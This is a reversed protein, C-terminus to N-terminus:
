ISYTISFPLWCGTTMTNYSNTGYRGVYINGDTKVDLLWRNIASGHCVYVYNWAPRFQEPITGAIKYETTNSTIDSKPKVAGAIFVQNGNVRYRPTQISSGYVEFNMSDVTLNRWNTCGGVIMWESWANTYYMRQFIFQETKLCPYYTQIVQAGEGSRIVTLAGTATSSAFWMPKNTITASLTTNGIIYYGETLITDLDTGEPLEKPSSILEGHTSRMIFGFEAAGEEEAVKGFGIGTGGARQSIFVARTSISTAQKTNTIADTATVRVDYSSSSDAEFIYQAETVSYQGAIESLTIPTGYSTESTKRYELKYTATNKSSLSTIAANFTVKIYNGTANINGASDCRQVVLNTIKPKSYALVTLNSSKGTGSRGRKDKVTASVTVTGSNKLVDTTFSAKTYTSGDASVSYSAIASGYSTTPTVTVAFKSVGQIFGGFTALKGTPDTVAVTCSPKVSSPISCTKTYSNSGVSTDGNYTTITYKISVSTGETNQSALSLPPTFSVSTNSSKTCITGSATGCTYKITHTFATTQKTVTLTQATGLTGNAVSMTSKRPITTLVKSCSAAVTGSSVGSTYSASCKLTKTGDSDHTIDLTKSYLNCVGSSTQGTNFPSTFTYKTGDITVSGSKELLNYSGGTWKANVKVTLNSTNNAISQSNQTIDITISVAM